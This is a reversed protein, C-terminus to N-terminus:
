LQDIFDFHSIVTFQLILHSLTLPPTTLVLDDSQKVELGRYQTEM